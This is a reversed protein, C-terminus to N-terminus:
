WVLLSKPLVLGYISDTEISDHLVTLTVIWGPNIQFWLMFSIIWILLKHFSTIIESGEEGFLYMSWYRGKEVWSSPSTTVNLEPTKPVLKRQPKYRVALNIIYLNPVPSLNASYDSPKLCWRDTDAFKIPEPLPKESILHWYMAQVLATINRIGLWLISIFLYVLIHCFFKPFHRQFHRRFVTSLGNPESNFISPSEVSGVCKLLSYM